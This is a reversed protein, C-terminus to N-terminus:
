CEGFLWCFHWWPSDEKPPEEPKKIVADKNHILHFEELQEPSTVETAPGRDFYFAWSNVVPVSGLSFKNQRQFYVSEGDLLSDLAEFHSVPQGKAADKGAMFGTVGAGALGITPLWQFPEYSKSIFALAALAVGGAAAAFLGGRFGENLAARTVRGIAGSESKKYFRWPKDSTLSDKVFFALENAAKSVPGSGEFEKDPNFTRHLLQLEELSKLVMPTGFNIEVGLTGPKVAYTEALSAAKEIATPAIGAGAVTKLGAPDINVELNRRPEFYVPEERELANLATLPDMQQGRRFVNEKVHDASYFRWPYGIDNLQRAFYGMLKLGQPREVAQDSPLHQEIDIHRAQPKLARRVSTIPSRLCSVKM